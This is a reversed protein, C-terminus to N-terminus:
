PINEMGNWSRQHLWELGPPFSLSSSLPLSPSFVILMYWSSLLAPLSLSLSLFSRFGSFSSTLADLGVIIAAEAATEEDEEEM